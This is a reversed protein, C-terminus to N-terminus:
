SGTLMPLDSAPSVEEVRRWIALLVSELIGAYADMMHEVSFRIGYTQGNYRLFFGVSRGACEQWRWRAPELTIANLEATIDDARAIQREDLM